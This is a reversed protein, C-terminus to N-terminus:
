RGRGVLDVKLLKSLADIHTTCFLSDMNADSAGTKFSGTALYSALLYMFVIYLALSLVIGFLNSTNQQNVEFMARLVVAFLGLLVTMGILGPAKKIKGFVSSPAIKAFESDAGTDLMNDYTTQQQKLGLMFNKRDAPALCNSVCAGSADAESSANIAEFNKDWLDNLNKIDERLRLNKMLKVLYVNGYYKYQAYVFYYIVTEVLVPILLFLLCVVESKTFAHAKIGWRTTCHIVFLLLALGAVGYLMYLAPSGSFVSSGTPTPPPSATDLCKAQRATVIDAVSPDVLAVNLLYRKVIEVANESIVSGLFYLTFYGIVCVLLLTYVLTFSYDKFQM